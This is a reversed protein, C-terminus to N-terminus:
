ELKKEAKKAGKKVLEYGQEIMWVIFAFVGNVIKEFKALILMIILIKWIPINLHLLFILVAFLFVIHFIDTIIAFEEKM